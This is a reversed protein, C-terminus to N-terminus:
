FFQRLFRLDNEFFIRIHEIKYRLMTLREVGLGFAFGSLEESDYGVNELVKPHIMGAGLVEMWGSQKCAPCGKGSCILCGIDVEASPETFPFFSPRFRVKVEAGFFEKLFEMLVGKLHAFNIHKDVMFGEVQHFMPSHSVDADCRYVRGPCIVRLPPKLRSMARIQVPSTHTRLILGNELYFTAQMDRAPHDPLFNLATFNHYETEADPGEEIWFGMGEFIDTIEELIISLPHKSGLSPGFGPLSIDIEEKERKQEVQALIEKEKTQILEEITKKAQNLLQGAKPRQEQALDKISTLKQTIIGKRGLYRVRLQNLEELNRASKIEEEARESIEKLEVEM